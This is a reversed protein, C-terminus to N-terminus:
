LGTKDAYLYKTNIITKYLLLAIFRKYLVRPPEGTINYDM